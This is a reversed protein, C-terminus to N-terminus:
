QLVELLVKGSRILDGFSAQIIFRTDNVKWAAAIGDLGAKMSAIANDIDRNRKIPPHFTLSLTIKYNKLDPKTAATAIWFCTNKYKKTARAKPAWHSKENPNLARPPYPLELKM